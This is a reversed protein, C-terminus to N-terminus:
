HGSKKARAAQIAALAADGDIPTGKSPQRYYYIAGGTGLIAAFIFGIMVLSGFSDALPIQVKIGNKDM